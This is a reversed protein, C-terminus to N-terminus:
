AAEKLQDWKQETKDRCAFAEKRKAQISQGINKKCWVHVRKTSVKEIANQVVSKTTKFVMAAVSLLLGTFGIKPFSGPRDCILSGLRSTRPVWGPCRYSLLYSDYVYPLLQSLTVAKEKKIAIFNVRDKNPQRSPMLYALRKGKVKNENARGPM